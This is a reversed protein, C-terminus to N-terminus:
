TYMLRIKGKGTRFSPVKRVSSLYRFNFFRRWGLTNCFYIKIGLFYDRCCTIASSDQLESLDWIYPRICHDYRSTVCKVGKDRTSRRPEEVKIKYKMEEMKQERQASVSTFIVLRQRSEAENCQQWKPFILLKKKMIKMKKEDDHYACYWSTHNTVM